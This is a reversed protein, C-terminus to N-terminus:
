RRSELFRVCKELNKMNKPNEQKLEQYMGINGVHRWLNRTITAISGIPYGVYLNLIVMSKENEAHDDTSNLQKQSKWFSKM